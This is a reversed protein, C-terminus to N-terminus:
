GNPWAPAGSASMSQLGGQLLTPMQWASSVHRTPISLMVPKSAVYRSCGRCKWQFTYLLFVFCLHKEWTELDCQCVRNTNNCFLSRVGHAILTCVSVKKLLLVKLINTSFFYVFLNLLNFFLVIYVLLNQLVPSFISRNLNNLSEVNKRWFPVKILSKRHDNQRASMKAM